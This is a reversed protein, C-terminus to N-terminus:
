YPIVANQLSLYIYHGDPIDIQPFTYVCIGTDGNPKQDAYRSNLYLQISDTNANSQSMNM